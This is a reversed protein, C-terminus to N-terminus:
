LDQYDDGYRTFELTFTQKRPAGDTFFHEQDEEISSIYWRGLTEGYGTTLTVPSLADGIARLDDLHGVGHAALFIAGSVSITEGGKGVAQAAPRRTLRDQTPTNYKKSRHLRDFAAQGLAFRFLQGPKDGAIELLFSSSPADKFSMGAASLASRALRQASLGGAVGGLAGGIARKLTSNAAGLRAGADRLLQESAGSLDRSALEIVGAARKVAQAAPGAMVPASKSLLETARQTLATASDANAVAGAINRVSDHLRAVGAARAASDAAQKLLPLYDM